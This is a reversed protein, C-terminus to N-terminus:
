IKNLFKKILIELYKLDESNYNFRYVFNKLKPYLDVIEKKTYIEKNNLLAMFQGLQFAVQKLYYKHMIDNNNLYTAKSLDLQKLIELLELDDNHILYSNYNTNKLYNKISDFVRKAKLRLDRKVLRKIANPYFQVHNDYTLFLTNNFEDPNGKVCDEVIGDKVVALNCDIPKPTMEKEEFIKFIIKNCYEIMKFIDTKSMKLNNVFVCVDYDTSDKSGFIQYKFPFDIM